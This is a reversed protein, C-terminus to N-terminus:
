IYKRYVINNKSKILVCFKINKSVFIINTSNIKRYEYYIILKNFINQYSVLTTFKNELYLSM